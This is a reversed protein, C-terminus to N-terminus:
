RRVRQALGDADADRVRLERSERAVALGRASELGRCRLRQAAARGLEDALVSPHGDPSEVRVGQQHVRGAEGGLAVHPNGRGGQGKHGRVVPPLSYDTTACSRCHVPALPSLTM